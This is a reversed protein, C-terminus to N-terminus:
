DVPDVLSNVIRYALSTVFLDLENLGVLLLFPLFLERLSTVELIILQSISTFPPPNLALLRSRVCSIFM